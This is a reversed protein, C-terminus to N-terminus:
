AELMGVQFLHKWAANRLVQKSPPNSELSFSTEQMIKSSHCPLFQRTKKKILKLLYIKPCLVAGYLRSIAPLSLNPVQQEMVLTVGKREHRQAGM